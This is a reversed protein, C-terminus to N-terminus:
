RLSFGPAFAGSRGLLVSFSGTAAAAEEEVRRMWASHDLAPASGVGPGLAPVVLYQLDAERLVDGPHLETPGHVEVDNVTPVVRGVQLHLRGGEQLVQAGSPLRTIGHELQLPYPGGAGVVLLLWRQRPMPAPQSPSPQHLVVLAITGSRNPKPM